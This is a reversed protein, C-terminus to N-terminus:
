EGSSPKASKKAENANHVATQLDPRTAINDPTGEVRTIQPNMNWTGQQPFPIEIKERDFAKKLRRLYERGVPWQKGAVTKLRGKIIVASDAFRDVGAIEAPELMADSWDPDNRMEDGVARMVEVVHDTDEKYAVGINFEYFSFDKTLNHIVTIDSFPITFVTGNYSRLQVKRLTIKEIVGGLNAINVVDGVRMVDELILTFGTIFDKVMTQAGFGIAIGVIGAGALLPMINIGLESLLVLAFLILFIIVLVNRAIPLITSARTSEKGGLRTFSFHIAANLGEWVLVGLAVVFFVNMSTRLASTFWAQNFPNIAEVEWILCWAYVLLLAISVTVVIRLIRGYLRLRMAPMDLWTIARDTWYLGRTVVRRFFFTLAAAILTVIATLAIKGVTSGKLDNRILFDEYRQIARGAFNEVGLTQTLPALTEEAEQATSKGQEELLIKLNSLLETRATESEITEILQKIEADSASPTSQVTESSPEAVVATDAPAADQALVTFPTLLALTLFVHLFARRM